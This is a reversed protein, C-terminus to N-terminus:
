KRRRRALGLGALGLAVMALTAPEPVAAVGWDNVDWKVNVVGGDMWIYTWQDDGWGVSITNVLEWNSVYEDAIGFLSGWSAGWVGFTGLGNEFTNSFDYTWSEFDAYDGVIAGGFALALNAGELDVTSVTFNPQFTLEGDQGVFGNITMYGGDTDFSLNDVAGFNNIGNSYGAITLAEISGNAGNFTGGGYIVDGIWGANSVTSGLMELIEVTGAANNAFTGGNVTATGNVTGSNAFTGGNVTANTTVTNGSRNELTGGNNVTATTLNGWNISSANANVTLNNVAGTGSYSGGGYTLNTITGSNSM